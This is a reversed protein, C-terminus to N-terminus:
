NGISQRNNRTSIDNAVLVRAEQLTQQRHDDLLGQLQAVTNNDAGGNVTLHTDGMTLNVGPSASPLRGMGNDNAVTTAGPKLVSYASTPNGYADRPGNYGDVSKTATDSASASAGGGGKGFVKVGFGILAAATAAGAILNLPFPLSAIAKAIAEIGHAAARLGSNAVSTGTHATDMIMSKIQMAFKFLYYAKEIGEMVKYGTTGEKFFGKAAHIMDGYQNIRDNTMQQHIRGVEFTDQASMQQGDRYKEQLDILKQQNVAQADSYNAMVNILDAFGKGATGFLDSFGAVSERLAKNMDRIVETANSAAQIKDKIAAASGVEEVQQKEASMLLPNTTLDVGTKKKVDAHAEEQKRLLIARERQENNMSLLSNQFQIAQTEKIVNDIYDDQIKATYKKEWAAQNDNIAQTAAVVAKTQRIKSLATLEIQTEARKQGIVSEDVKKTEKDLAAAYEEAHKLVREYEKEAESKGEKKPKKTKGPNGDADEIREQGAAKSNRILDNGFNYTGQYGKKAANVGAAIPNSAVWKIEDAKKVGTFFGLSQAFGIAANIGKILINLAGQVVSVVTAIIGSVAGVTIAVIAGVAKAVIKLLKVVEDGVASFAGGFYQKITRGLGKFVDGMTLSTSIGDDKLKQMQKSTLGMGKTLNGVSDKAIEFGGVFALGVLAAAAAIAGLILALPAFAVMEAAAAASAAVAAAEEATALAIAAVAAEASSAAVAENALAVRAQAAALETSTVALTMQAEALALEADANVVASSATEAFALMVDRAAGAATAEAVAMEDVTVKVLGISASLDSFFGSMGGGSQSFIQGLRGSELTLARMPSQGAIVSDVVSRIVHSFEMGQVRSIGTANAHGHLSATSKAVAASMAFHADQLAKSTNALGKTSKEANNGAKALNDLAKAGKDVDSADVKIGLTAIDVSM